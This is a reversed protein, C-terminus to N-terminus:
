CDILLKSLSIATPFVNPAVAKDDYPPNQNDNAMTSVGPPNSITSAYLPLLNTLAKPTNRIPHHIKVVKSKIHVKLDVTAKKRSNKKRSMANRRRPIPYKDLEMPGLPEYPGFAEHILAPPYKPSKAAKAAQYLANAPIASLLYAKVEEHDRKAGEGLLM